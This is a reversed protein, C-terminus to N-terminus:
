IISIITLFHSMKVEGKLLEGGSMANLQDMTSDENPEVGAM